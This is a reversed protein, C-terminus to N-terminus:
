ASSFPAPRRRYLEWYRDAAFGYLLVGPIALGFERAEAKDPPLPEDLPGLEALSAAGWALLVLALGWRFLRKRRLIAAATEQTLDIASFAAFVSALALGVPTALVFGTNPM